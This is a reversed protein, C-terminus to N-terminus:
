FRPLPSSHRLLQVQTWLGLRADIPNLSSQPIDRCVTRTGSSFPRKERTGWQVMDALTDSAPREVAGERRQGEGERPACAAGREAALATARCPGKPRRVFRAGAVPYIM